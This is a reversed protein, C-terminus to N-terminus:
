DLEGVSDRLELFQRYGAALSSRQGELEEASLESPYFLRSKGPCWWARLYLGSLLAQESQLIERARDGIWLERLARSGQLSSESGRRRRRHMSGCFSRSSEFDTSNRLCRLVRGRLFAIRMRKADSLAAPVQEPLLLGSRVMQQPDEGEGSELWLKAAMRQRLSAGLPASRWRASQLDILALGGSTQALFNGPNLDPHFLGIEALRATLACYEAFDPRREEVEIASMALLSLEPRLFRRRTQVYLPIPCDIGAAALRLLSRAEREAPLARHLYRLADKSRPFGMLKVYVLRGSGLAGRGVSRILRSQVDECAAPLSGPSAACEDAWSRLEQLEEPQLDGAIIPEAV